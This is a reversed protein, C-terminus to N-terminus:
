RGAMPCPLRRWQRVYPGEPMSGGLVDVDPDIFGPPDAFIVDGGQGRRMDHGESIM